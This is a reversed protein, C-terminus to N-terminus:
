YNFVVNYSFCSCEYQFSFLIEFQDGFKTIEYYHFPKHNLCDQIFQIPESITFHTIPLTFNHPTVLKNYTKENYSFKIFLGDPKIEDVLTIEGYTSM